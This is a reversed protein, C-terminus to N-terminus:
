VKRALEEQLQQQATHFKENMQEMVKKEIEEQSPGRYLLLLTSYMCVYMSVLHLQVHFNDM